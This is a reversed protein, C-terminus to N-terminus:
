PGYNQEHATMQRQIPNNYRMMPSHDPQMMWETTQVEHPILQYQEQMIDHASGYSNKSM